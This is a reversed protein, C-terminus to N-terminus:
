NVRAALILDFSPAGLPDNAAFQGNLEVQVTSVASDFGDTNPAPIYNFTSGGDNSYRISGLTVNTPVPSASSDFIVPGGTLCTASVCLRLESPIEDTIVLSNADPSNTGLNHVSIVYQMDANPIAFPNGTGNIPDAVVTVDKVIALDVAFAVHFASSAAIAGASESTHSRESDNDTEEDITLGIALASLSCRRAVGGNNGFRSNASAVVLPATPFSSQFNNSFCGDSFGQVNRPTLLSQLTVSTSNSDTFQINVNSEIAVVGVEELATVTGATSELRELSIQMQANTINHLAVSLFPTSPTNPPNQSENATSQISAVVTPTADFASPFVLTDWTNSLLRNVFSNTTQTTALLRSGDPLAHNGPEIALYATNMAVHPGDNANPEVQLIQFGATTVNRIRITAPDSGEDTPLTVVIPRVSFAEAFTVTTWLPTTFTDNLSVSGMEMEYAHADSSVSLSLLGTVSFGLLLQLYNIASKTM